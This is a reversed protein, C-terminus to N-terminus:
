KWKINCGLSPVQEASVPQGAILADLAVRIDKGDNPKANGPRAEDLQGRYVCQLEGNFIFFDPTCAADYSRAVDQTEDYLYPFQYGLEKALEVMKDPADDPYNQVDNSSIAVFAIGKSLYDNTLAVIGKQIHKVFPCHNCTFMVVTAIDSKIGSLSIKNESVVDLLEFDPAITGLPMMNSETRAM